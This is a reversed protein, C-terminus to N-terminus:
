TKVKTVDSLEVEIEEREYHNSKRNLVFGEIRDTITLAQPQMTLLVGRVIGEGHIFAPFAKLDILIGRATAPQHNVVFGEVRSFNSQGPKLTGYVFLNINEGDTKM